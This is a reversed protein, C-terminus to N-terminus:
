DFNSVTTVVVAEGRDNLIGCCPIGTVVAGSFQAWTGCGQKRLGFFPICPAM